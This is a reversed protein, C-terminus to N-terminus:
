LIAAAQGLEAKAMRFAIISIIPFKAEPRIRGGVSKHEPKVGVLAFIVQVAVAELPIPQIPVHGMGRPADAEDGRVVVLLEADVVAVADAHHALPLCGAIIYAPIDVVIMHLDSIIEIM